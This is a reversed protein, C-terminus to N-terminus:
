SESPPPLVMVLSLDNLSGASPIAEINYYYDGEQLPFIQCIRAAHLGKPFVGDLGTTVLLDGVKLLPLPEGKEGELIAGSRLERAPGTEDGYDLNFGSGKLILGGSRWIPLGSGQLEGKALLVSEKCSLLDQYFLELEEFLREGNAMQGALDERWSLSDLLSDIHQILEINQLSGRAVQVSPKLRNDTILRVRSSKAGVEEIIGVISLGIVVPSNKAILTEKLKQNTEEGVNIWLTSYWTNPSRRIVKAPVSKLYLHSLVDKATQDQPDKALPYIVQDIINVQSAALQDIRNWDIVQKLAQGKMEEELSSREDALTEKFLAFPTKGQFLQYNIISPLRPQSFTDFFFYSANAAKLRLSESFSKPLALLLLLTGLITLKFIQERELKV